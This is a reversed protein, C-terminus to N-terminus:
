NNMDLEHGLEFCYIHKLDCLTYNAVSYNEGLTYFDIYYKFRYSFANYWICVCIKTSGRFYTPFESSENM